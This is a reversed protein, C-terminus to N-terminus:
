RKLKEIQLKFLTSTVKFTNLDTHTQVVSLFQNEFQNLLSISLYVWLGYTKYRGQGKLTCNNLCTLPILIIFNLKKSLGKLLKLKLYYWM